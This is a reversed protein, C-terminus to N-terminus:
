KNADTPIPADGVYKGGKYLKIQILMGNNDYIRSEGDVLRYLHFTGKQTIQGNRVLTNAGEGKFEGAGSSAKMDSSAVPPKEAANVTPDEPAKEVKDASAYEKTKSNDIVGGNYFTERILKGNADYEKKWGDEKGAKLNVEIALTGNPNKYVQKGDRQGVANYNFSQRETGDDYYLHYEGSWRVGVWTGEEAKLGNENYLIAHGNPRNNVFTFENKNKGDPYYAKWVGSKQSDKYVGEEVKADNAYAKNKQMKGFITWHGQRKGQPDTYNEGSDTQSFVPLGSFFILLLFLTAKKM